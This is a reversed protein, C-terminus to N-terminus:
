EVAEVICTASGGLTTGGGFGVTHTLVVAAHGRARLLFLGVPISTALLFAASKMESPAQIAAHVLAAREARTSRTEWKTVEADLQGSRERSRPLDHHRAVDLPM